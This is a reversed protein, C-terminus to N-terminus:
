NRCQKMCEMRKKRCDATCVLDDGCNSSCIQYAETCIQLCQSQVVQIRPRPKDVSVPRESVENPVSVMLLLTAGILGLKSSM